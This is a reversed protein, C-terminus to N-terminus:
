LNRLFLMSPAFFYEGGKMTVFGNFGFPKKVSTSDDWVKLYSLDGPPGSKKQGIVPDVGAASGEPFDKSNAWSQQTVVFQDDLKANYAMFLLGLGGAPLNPRVKEMFKEKTDAGPLSDPHVQRPTDEYTIGRRVMIHLQEEVSPVKPARSGRPNTKRIHAHFPCRAGLKDGNYNFDNRPDKIGKAESSMTVPTGDEFRGVVLAGALERDEGTLDLADALEQERTKFDQVREELKRFIFFSGFALSDANTMPDAVLAKDLSATPDWHAIGEDRSEVEIDEVLMLPQSRGDVYGFHELGNGAKNRIAKGDQKHVLTCGADKLLAEIVFVRAAGRVTDDDAVLIMGHIDVRFAAEWMSVDPDDLDKIGSADKMGVAFANNQAPTTFARGLAQYGLASIFLACFTGGDTKDVKFAETAILQKYASTVHFNGLERLLRKSKPVDAGFAFFLNTTHDRGHGKLINGQLNDLVKQEQSNASKWRLPADLRFVPPCPECHAPVSDSAAATTQPATPVATPPSVPAVNTKKEVM